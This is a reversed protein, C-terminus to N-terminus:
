SRPDTPEEPAHAGRARTTAPEEAGSAERPLLDRLRRRAHFMRTKVTNEPCGVIEAIEAYSHGFYYTLEVVARHEPSLRGLAAFVAHRREREEVRREPGGHEVQHDAEVEVLTPAKSLKGVASLAKRYAIGLIWTSPKSRGAFTGAKQWVVIMVDNVLEEVIGHRGVMRYLFATVPGHYRRYLEELAARNGAAVSSLLASDSVEM